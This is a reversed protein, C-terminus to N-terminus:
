EYDLGRAYVLDGDPVDHRVLAGAGITAGSGVKIGNKLIAGSGIFVGDGICVDGNIRVGTAVHCNDGIKTDHEVLAISNIIANQGVIANANVVAGHGVLTGCGLMARRSVYAEPSVVIPIHAGAALAAEFVRARVAASKIQGVTIFAPHGKKILAHMVDDNGLVPYGLVEILNPSTDLIGAIELGASEIVDIAAKCHGGGGILVLGAM